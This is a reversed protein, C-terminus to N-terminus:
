SKGAQQKQFREYNTLFNELKEAPIKKGIIKKKEDLIYLTPTSMADYLDHYPGVYTRPGNVTIWKMNMTKIYEKMKQMSTDASVAFVEVDFKAKNKTYFDVLKPTETKCAGCDPDFFYVLTYKNKIKYLEKPQLAADQMILNPATKGILSKRLRDAHDKLNKKMKDNAWFDMEGSTFYTDNLYVFIEDLGMYEPAQYKLVLTWILYKYTEENTKAKAILPELAKKISDAQPAFLKDLYENVKQSYMPQPLRILADDSLDFYDFFHERYYQLQFTSDVSGDARKPPDPIEVRKTSKLLRATMTNGHATILDHQYAMVQDNIRSFSERAAKKRNEDKLTTDQLIKIFPDAEKGREMNFRLNDFFLRNDDDGKVVMNKVYDDSTTEMAFHQNSGVAIDFLRTRDLVVFYIGQPLAQPKKFRFEGKANVRATDRVLTSEAYYYGLYVTTDKLGSVKFSIDYGPKVQALASSAYVLISFIIFRTSIQNQM